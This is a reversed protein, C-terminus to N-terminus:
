GDGPPVSGPRHQRRWENPSIGHVKAFVRCLNKADGLNSDAAVADLKLDTQELLHTAAALRLRSLEDQFTCGLEKRFAHQLSRVSM